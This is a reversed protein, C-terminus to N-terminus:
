NAEILLSIDDYKILLNSLNLDKIVANAVAAGARNSLQFKECILGLSPLNIRAQLLKSDCDSMFHLLDDSTSQSSDSGVYGTDSLHMINDNSVTELELKKRTSPSELSKARRKFRMDGITLKEIAATTKAATTTKQDTYFAYVKECMRLKYVNELHIRQTNDECFIDSFSEMKMFTAEKQLFTTGRKNKPYRELDTFEKM